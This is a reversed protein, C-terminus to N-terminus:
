EYFPFIKPDPWPRIRFQLSDIMLKVGKSAFVDPNVPMLIINCSSLVSYSISTFSPPCDFFVYDFNFDKSHKIM